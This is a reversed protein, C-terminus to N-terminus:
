WTAEVPRPDEPGNQVHGGTMARDSFEEALPDEHVVAYLTQLYASKKGPNNEADYEWGRFRVNAREVDMDDLLDVIDADLRTQNKSTVMVVRPPRGATNFVVHLKLYFLEDDGEQRPPRSKVNYGQSALEDAQKRDLVIAFNRRGEDNFKDRRGAFNKFILRVGELEVSQDKKPQNSM